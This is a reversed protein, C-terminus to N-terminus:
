AKVEFNISTATLPKPSLYVKGDEGGVPIPLSNWVSLFGSFEFGKVTGAATPIWVWVYKAAPSSRTIVIELGNISKTVKTSGATIQSEEIATSDALGYYITYDDGTPPQGGSFWSSLDILASDVHGIPSFLSLTITRRNNDIDATIGNVASKRFATLHEDSARSTDLAVKINKENTAIRSTNSAIQSAHNNIATEHAQSSAKLTAIDQDNKNISSLMSAFDPLPYFGPTNTSDTGYYSRAAATAIGKIASAIDAENVIGDDNSDYDTKLMDGSGVGGNPLTYFGPVGVANTGYYKTNGATSAGKLNDSLTVSGDDDPDYIAKLMDGNGTGDGSILPVEKFRRISIMMYPVNSSQNGYLLVDDTDHYFSIIFTEGQLVDIPTTNSDLDYKFTTDKVFDGIVDDFATRGNFELKMKVGSLSVAPKLIISWTRHNDPVTRSFVPNAIVGSSNSEIFVDAIQSDTYMRYTPIWTKDRTIRQWVPTFIKDNWLNKFMVNEAASSIYHPGISLSNSKTNISGDKALVRSDSLKGGVVTLVADDSFQSFDFNDPNFADANVGNPDYVSTKMDVDLDVSDLKTKDADTFANTDANSEYMQKVEAETYESAELKSDLEPQLGTITSIPLEGKHNSRDFADANVSNPDYTSALMDGSKPINIEFEDTATETVTVGGGKFNYGKTTTSELIDKNKTYFPNQHARIDGLHKAAETASNQAEQSSQKANDADQKVIAATDTVEKAKDTVTSVQDTIFQNDGVVKVIIDTCAMM